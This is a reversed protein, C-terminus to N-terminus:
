ARGAIAKDFIDVTGPITGSAINLAIERPGRLTWGHREYFRHAPANGIVCSLWIVNHGAAALRAEGDALLVPALGTGRAAPALFLAHLEDNLTACFGLLGDAPGAVRLDPALREVRALFSDYGREAVLEPAALPAHTEHWVAHWLAAVAPIDAAAAPRPTM